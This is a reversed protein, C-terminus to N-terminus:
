DFREVTIIMQVPNMNNVQRIYLKKYKTDIQIKTSRIIKNDVALEDMETNVNKCTVAKYESPTRM